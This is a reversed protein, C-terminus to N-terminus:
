HLDGKPLACEVYKSQEVVQTNLAELRYAQAASAISEQVHSCLLRAPNHRHHKHASGTVIGFLCPSEHPLKCNFTAGVFIPLEHPLAVFMAILLNPCDPHMSM